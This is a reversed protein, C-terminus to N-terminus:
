DMDVQVSKGAFAKEPLSIVQTTGEGTPPTIRFQISSLTATPDSLSLTRTRHNIWLLCPQDVWITHQNPLTFEGAEHFAIGTMKLEQHHVAQIKSSNQLIRIPLEQSYTGADTKGIGPVVIYAYSAHDPQIGHDFWLAFVDSRYISDAGLGYIKQLQGSQEAAKLMVSEANPFLYAVSDHWIWSADPLQVEGGAFPTGNQVVTGKRLTQNIGTVIPSEHTSQIGAGLAVWERDFWFWSKKAQTQQIDLDMASLGYTGDSVGGVFSTQQTSKGKQKIETHPSTVGPLRAWDWTPFIDLYEDGKRYIYTLGYPLYYGYLNESNVDMEMGITRQSCMKLSTFYEKRHHATYDSRWFHRNGIIEQPHQHQIRSKSDEYFAQYTPDARIFHNLQPVVKEAMLTFGGTSRGVQRGRVNYDLLGGRIMWRTGEQYYNRLIGMEQESYAYETGQLIAAFWITERLFNHGYSGNYIFPGHQHFSYDVQVGEGNGQRIQDKVGIIGAQIRAENKELVGRYFVSIALLTKNSGTMRPAPTLDKIIKNLLTEEIHDQMLIGIVNFYFQKAIENKYWNKCRPNVTYWYELSKVIGALLAQNQYLSDGPKHYAYSMVLIHDLALLPNWANDRDAYDVDEWQGAPTLTNLYAGAKSLDMQIYRSTSPIFGQDEIANDFLRQRLLETQPNPSAIHGQTLSISASFILLTILAHITKM